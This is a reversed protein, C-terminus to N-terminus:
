LRININLAFGCFRVSTDGVVVSHEVMSSSNGTSLRRIHRPPSSGGTSIFRVSKCDAAKGILRVKVKNSLLTDAKSFVRVEGESDETRHEVQHAVSAKHSHLFLSEFGLVRSAFM